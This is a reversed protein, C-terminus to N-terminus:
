VRQPSEPGASSVLRAAAGMSLGVPRAAAPVCHSPTAGRERPQLLCLAWGRSQVRGFSAAPGFGAVHDSPPPLCPETAPQASRREWLNTDQAATVFSWLRPTLTPPCEFNDERLEPPWFDSILPDVSRLGRWFKWPLTGGAKGLEQRARGAGPLEPCMATDSWGRGRHECLEWTKERRKYPWTDHLKPDLRVWCSRRELDKM